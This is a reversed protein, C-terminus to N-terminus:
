LEEVLPLRFVTSRISAPLRTEPVTRSANSTASLPAVAERSTSAPASSTAAAVM